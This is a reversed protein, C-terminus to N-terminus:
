PKTTLPWTVVEAAGKAPKEFTWKKATAGLCHEVAPDGLTSDKVVTDLVEGNDDITIQFVLQGHIGPHLRACPRLDVVHGEIWRRVLPEDLSGVFKLAGNDEFHPRGIARSAIACSEKMLGTANGCRARREAPTRQELELANGLLSGALKGAVGKYLENMVMGAHQDFCQAQEPSGKKLDLCSDIKPTVADICAALFTSDSVVPNSAAIPTDVVLRQCLVGAQTESRSGPTHACGALVLFLATPLTRRM